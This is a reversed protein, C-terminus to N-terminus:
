SASRTWPLNITEDRYKFLLVSSTEVGYYKCITKHPQSNLIHCADIERATTQAVFTTSLAQWLYRRDPKLMNCHKKYVAKVM